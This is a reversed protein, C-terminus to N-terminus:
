GESDEGSGIESVARRFNGLTVPPKSGIPRRIATAKSPEPIEGAIIAQRLGDSISPQEVPDKTETELSASWENYLKLMEHWRDVEKTLTDIQSLAAAWTSEVFAPIQRLVSDFEKKIVEPDDPLDKIQDIASSVANNLQSVHFSPDSVLQRTMTINEELDQIKNQIVESFSM